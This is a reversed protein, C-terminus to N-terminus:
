VQWIENLELLLTHFASAAIVHQGIKRRTRDAVNKVKGASSGQQLLRNAVSNVSLCNVTM